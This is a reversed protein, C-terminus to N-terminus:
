LNWRFCYTFLLYCVQIDMFICDVSFSRDNLIDLATSGDGASIVDHGMKELMRSAVKINIPNDDVLLILLASENSVLVEEVDADDGSNQHMSSQRSGLRTLEDQGNTSSISGKSKQYGFDSRTSNTISILENSIDEAVFPKVVWKVRLLQSQSQNISIMQTTWCLRIIGKILPLTRLIDEVLLEVDLGIVFSDVVVFSTDIKGLSTMIAKHDLGLVFTKLQTGMRQSVQNEIVSNLIRGTTANSTVIGVNERPYTVLADNYPKTGGKEGPYLNATFIFRSGIGLESEVWISGEFIKVLKSVVSLGLGTGGHKNSTKADNEQKYPQFIHSLKDQAIGAGSDEVSIRVLHKNTPDPQAIVSVEGEKTFKLANSLLNSIVQRLRSPDGFADDELTPDIDCHLELGRQHANVAFIKTCLRVVDSLSFHIKELTMQQAELKSFDLIDNLLSLLSEASTYATDLYDAFEILNSQKDKKNKASNECLSLALQLMGIIGNLPTRIEHSMCALFESKLRSAAIAEKRAKQLAINAKKVKKFHKVISARHLFAVATALCFYVPVYVLLQANSISKNISIDSGLSEFMSEGGTEWLVFLSISHLVSAICAYFAHEINCVILCLGPSLSLLMLSITGKGGTIYNMWMLCSMFLVMSIGSVISMSVPFFSYKLDVLIGFAIFLLVLFISWTVDTFYVLSTILAIFSYLLAFLLIGVTVLNRLKGKSSKRVDKHLFANLIVTTMLQWDIKEFQRTFISEEVIIKSYGNSLYEQSGKRRTNQPDKGHSPSSGDISISLDGSKCKPQTAASSKRSIAEDSDNRNADLSKSLMNTLRRALYPSKFEKTSENSTRGPLYAKSYTQSAMVNSDEDLDYLDKLEEAEQVSIETSSVELSTKMETPGLRNNQRPDTKQEDSPLM